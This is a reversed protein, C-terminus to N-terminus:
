TKLEEDIEVILHSIMKEIGRYTYIMYGRLDCNLKLLEKFENNNALESPNIPRSHTYSDRILYKSIMPILQEYQFKEDRVQEM